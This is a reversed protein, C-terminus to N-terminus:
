KQVNIHVLLRFLVAFCVKVLIHCDRILHNWTRDRMEGVKIMESKLKGYQKALLKRDEETMLSHVADKMPFYQSFELHDPSSVLIWVLAVNSHYPLADNMALDTELNCNVTAVEAKNENNGDSEKLTLLCDNNISGNPDDHSHRHLALPPYRPHVIPSVPPPEFPDYLHTTTGSVITVAYSARPSSWPTTLTDTTTTKMVHKGNNGMQTTGDMSLTRQCINRLFSAIGNFPLRGEIICSYRRITDRASKVLWRDTEKSTLHLGQENWKCSPSLVCEDGEQSMFHVFARRVFDFDTYLKFTQRDSQTHNIRVIHYYTSLSKVKLKDFSLIQGYMTVRLTWYVKLEFYYDTSEYSSSDDEFGDFTQIDIPCPVPRGNATSKRWKARILSFTDELFSMLSGVSSRRTRKDANFLSLIVPEVGNGNKSVGVVHFM